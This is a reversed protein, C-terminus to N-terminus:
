RLHCRHPPTPPPPRSLVARSGGPLLPCPALPVAAPLLPCCRAAAPLVACRLSVLVVRAFNTSVYVFLAVLMFVAGAHFWSEATCGCRRAKQGMIINSPGRCTPNCQPLHTACDFTSSKFCPGLAFGAATAGGNAVDAEAAATGCVSPPAAACAARGNALGLVLAPLAGGFYTLNLSESLLRV